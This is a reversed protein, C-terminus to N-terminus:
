LIFPPAYGIFRDFRGFPRSAMLFNVNPALRFGRDLLHEIAVVNPAPVDIGLEERGLSRARDEVHLLIDPEHCPDLAAIPGAGTPGVFAFGAPDNAGPERYLYGERHDLLWRMEGGRDYGLVSREIAGLAEMGAADTVREPVLGIAEAAGGAPAGALRLFPFQIRTGARHYRAVARMDSTAIIARVEGRDPPFARELLARGIGSSQHAPHVFLESLEFLGGRELSRAYGLLTGDAADEALWWEAAHDALFGYLDRLWSWAEDATQNRPANLRTALDTVSTWFLRFCPESDAPTARRLALEPRPM